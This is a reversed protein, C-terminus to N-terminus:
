AIPNLDTGCHKCKRADKRVWEMCAGCRGHTRPNIEDPGNRGKLSPLALVVIGMLLPSLLLGLVLWGLTSRGRAAAIAAVVAAGLIWIFFLEM